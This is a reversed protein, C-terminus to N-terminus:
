SEHYLVTLQPNIKHKDFSEDSVACIDERGSNFTIARM